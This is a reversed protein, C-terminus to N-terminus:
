LDFDRVDCEEAMASPWGLRVFTRRRTQPASVPAGTIDVNHPRGSGLRGQDLCSPAMFRESRGYFGTGANLQESTTSTERLGHVLDPEPM